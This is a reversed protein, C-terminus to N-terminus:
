MGDKKPNKLKQFIELQKQALGKEGTLNYLRSLQFHADADNPNLAVAKELAIRAKAEAGTQLYVAGLDRLASAYNPADKTTQELYDVAKETEGQSKYSLGLQYKAEFNNPNMEVCHLLQRRADGIRETQAAYVLGLALCGRSDNPRLEAFKKLANEATPLSNSQLSAAGYLYLFEPEDPKLALLNEAAKVARGAQKARMAAVIFQSAIEPSNPNEAALKEILGLSEVANGREGALLSRAFILDPSNPNIKAAQDLHIKANALDRAYIETKALLILANANQPAAAIVKKLVQAAETFMAANNLTEAFKMATAPNQRALSVAFPVLAAAKQREDNKAYCEARVPLADSNKVKEALKAAAELAKGCDGVLAFANALNLRLADNSVDAAAISNLDLTAQASNGTQFNMVALNIKTSVSNPALSLAKQYLSKAEGLRNQKVRLRALLEFAAANKPNKIAYDLLEREVEAYNGAEISREFNALDNNQQAAAFDACCFLAIILLLFQFKIKNRRM